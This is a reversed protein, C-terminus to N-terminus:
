RVFSASDSEGVDKPIYLAVVRREGNGEGQKKEEASRSPEVFPVARANPPWSVFASQQEEQQPLAVQQRPLAPVPVGLVQEIYLSKLSKYAV